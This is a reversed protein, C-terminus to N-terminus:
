RSHICNRKNENIQLRILRFLISLHSNWIIPRELLVLTLPTTTQKLIHVWLQYIGNQQFFLNNILNIYFIKNKNVKNSICIWLTFRKLAYTSESYTDTWFMCRNLVYMPESYLDAWLMCRNLAYMPEFYANTWLM